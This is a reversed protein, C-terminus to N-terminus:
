FVFCKLITKKNDKFLGDERRFKFNYCQYYVIDGEIKIIKNKSKDWKAIIEMGIKIQKM